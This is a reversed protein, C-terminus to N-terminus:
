TPTYREVLDIMHVPYNELALRVTANRRGPKTRTETYNLSYMAYTRAMSWSYWTLGM